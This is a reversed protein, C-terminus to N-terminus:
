CRRPLLRRSFAGSLSLSVSGRTSPPVLSEGQGGDVSITTHPGALVASTDTFQAITHAPDGCSAGTMYQSIHFQICICEMFSTM